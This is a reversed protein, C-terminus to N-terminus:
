LYSLVLCCPATLLLGDVRDLMGGHGPILRGSDKVLFYRKLRSELIDGAQALLAVLGGALLYWGFSHGGDFAKLYQHSLGSVLMSFLVGGVLGEVTKKPSISPCLPHKGMLRGVVYGGIDTAWVTLWLWLMFYADIRYLWFLSLAPLVCWLVALIQWKFVKARGTNQLLRWWERLCLGCGITIIIAMGWIGIRWALLALVVLVLSSILRKWFM